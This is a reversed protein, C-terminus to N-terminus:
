IEFENRRKREKMDFFNCYIYICSQYQVTFLKNRGITNNIKVTNEGMKNIIMDTVIYQQDTIDLTTTLSPGGTTLM